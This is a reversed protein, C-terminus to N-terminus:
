NLRNIREMENKKKEMQARMRAGIIEEVKADDEAAIAGGLEPDQNLIYHL